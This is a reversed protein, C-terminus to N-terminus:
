WGYLAKQRERHSKKGAIGSAAAFWEAPGRYARPYLTRGRGDPHGISILELKKLKALRYQITRRSRGYKKMLRCNWLHCSNFGCSWILSLLRKDDANLIRPSIDWMWGPMKYIYKGAIM